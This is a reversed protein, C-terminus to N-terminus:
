GQLVEMHLNQDRQPFIEQDPLIFMIKIINARNLSTDTKHTIDKKTHSKMSDTSTESMMLVETEKTEEKMTETTDKMRIILSMTERNPNATEGQLPFFEIASIGGQHLFLVMQEMNDVMSGVTRGKMTEEM